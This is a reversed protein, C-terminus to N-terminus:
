NQGLLIFFLSLANEAVVSVATALFLFMSDPSPHPIEPPNPHFAAGLWIM